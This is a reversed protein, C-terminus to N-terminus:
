MNSKTVMDDEEIKSHHSYSVLSEQFALAFLSVTFIKGTPSRPEYGVKVSAGAM